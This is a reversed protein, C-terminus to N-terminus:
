PLNEFKVLFLSDLFLALITAKLQKRQLMVTKSQNEDTVTFYHEYFFMSFPLSPLLIFLENTPKDNGDEDPHPVVFKVPSL